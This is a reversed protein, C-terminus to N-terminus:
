LPRTSTFTIEYLETLDLQSRLRVWIREIWTARTVTAKRREVLRGGFPVKIAAGHVRVSDGPLIAIDGDLVVHAHLHENTHEVEVTCATDIVTHWRM